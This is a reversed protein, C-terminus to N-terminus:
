CGYIEKKMMTDDDLLYASYRPPVAVKEPRTIPMGVTKEPIANIGTM